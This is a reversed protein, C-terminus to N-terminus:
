LKIFLIKHMPFYGQAIKVLKNIKIYTDNKFIIELRKKKKVIWDNDRKQEAKQCNSVGNRKGSDGFPHGWGWDWVM